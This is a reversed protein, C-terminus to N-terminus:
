FSCSLFAYCQSFLSHFLDIYPHHKCCTSNEMNQHEKKRQPRGIKFSSQRMITPMTICWEYLLLIVFSECSTFDFCNIEELYYLSGKSEPLSKESKYRIFTHKTDLSNCNKAIMDIMYAFSAPQCMQLVLMFWCLESVHAVCGKQM